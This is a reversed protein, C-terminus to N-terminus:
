RSVRLCGGNVEAGAIVLEKLRVQKTINELTVGRAPLRYSAVMENRAAIGPTV